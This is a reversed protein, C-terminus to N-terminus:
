IARHLTMKTQGCVLDNYCTCSQWAHQHKQENLTAKACAKTQMIPITKSVVHLTDCMLNTHPVLCLCQFVFPFYMVAISLIDTTYLVM